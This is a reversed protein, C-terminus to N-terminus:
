QILNKLKKTKFFTNLTQYNKPTIMLKLREKSLNPHKNFYYSWLQYFKENFRCRPGYEYIYNLHVLRSNDDFIQLEDTLEYQMSMYDFWQHRFKNYLCQDMSYRMTPTHFYEFFHKVHTDVFIFSYGNTLCTVELYIKEELFDSVKTCSCVARILASRLWDSHALKSHNTVYPLRYKQITPEHYVRTYLDGKQNEVLVNLYSVSFDTSMQFRVTKDTERIDQLFTQIALKDSKNWTFFIQDKHRHLFSFLFLDFCKKTNFFFLNGDLCNM